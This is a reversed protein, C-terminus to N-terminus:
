NVNTKEQRPQGLHENFEEILGTQELWKAVSTAVYLPQLDGNKGKRFEGTKRLLGQEELCDFAEQVENTINYNQSSMSSEKSSTPRITVPVKPQKPKTLPELSLFDALDKETLNEVRDVTGAVALLRELVQHLPWRLMRAMMHAIDWFRIQSLVADKLYKMLDERKTQYRLKAMMLQVHEPGSGDTCTYLELGGIFADLDPEKWDREMGHFTAFQMVRWLVNWEGGFLEDLKAAYRWIGIQVAVATQLHELLEQKTNQLLNGEVLLNEVSQHNV